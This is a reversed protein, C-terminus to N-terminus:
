ATACPQCAAPTSRLRAPRARRRNSCPPFGALPQHASLMDNYSSVIALNPWRAERLIAKDNPEFAAFAHALNACSLGKRVPGKVRAQEIRALYASRTPASRQRIRDTVAALTPHLSM